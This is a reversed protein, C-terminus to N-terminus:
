LGFHKSTGTNEASSAYAPGTSFFVSHIWVQRDAVTSILLINPFYDQDTHGPVSVLLCFLPSATRLNVAECQHHLIM